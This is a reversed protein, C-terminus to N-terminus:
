YKSFLEIRNKQRYAEGLNTCVSWYSRRVQDTLSFKEESPFSKSIEFLEMALSYAKKYTELDRYSGM